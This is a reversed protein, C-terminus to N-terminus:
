KFLSEYQRSVTIREPTHKFGILMQNTFSRQIHEIKTINVIASRHVRWFYEPDLQNELEKITTTILYEKEQTQVVTYKDSAKFFIVQSVPIFTIQTGTRVKILNLSGKPMSNKLVQLLTEMRGELDFVTAPQNFHKELREITTQLRQATVPKLIYDVAESEFARIAYQDHATIFVVKSQGAIRAAVNIGTMGPMLIDLFVVDPKLEGILSLATEGDSATGVVQVRSAYNGLMSILNNQQPIEDEAILIRIPKM